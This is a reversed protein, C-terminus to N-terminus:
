RINTEMDGKSAWGEVIRLPKLGVGAERYGQQIEAFLQWDVEM